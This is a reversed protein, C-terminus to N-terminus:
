TPNALIESTGRAQQHIGPLQHSATTALHFRSEFDPIGFETSIGAGTLAVIRQAQKMLETADQLQQHLSLM